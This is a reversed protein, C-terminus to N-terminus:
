DAAEDLNFADFISADETSADGIHLVRKGGLTIVHGLNQVTGHRGTGHGVGLLEM